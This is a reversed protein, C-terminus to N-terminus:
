REQTMIRIKPGSAYEPLNLSWCRRKNFDDADMWVIAKDGVRGYKGAVILPRGRGMCTLSTMQERGNDSYHGMVEMEAWQGECGALLLALMAIYKRM